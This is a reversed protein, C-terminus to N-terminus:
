SSSISGDIVRSSSRARSEATMSHASRQTSALPFYPVGMLRGTDLSCLMRSRERGIQGGAFGPEFRQALGRGLRRRRARPARTGSPRRQRRVELADLMAVFGFRAGTTLAPLIQDLDALVDGLLEVDDRGFEEDM